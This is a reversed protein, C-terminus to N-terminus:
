GQPWEMFLVKRDNPTVGLTPTIGYPDRVVRGETHAKAVLIAVGQSIGGVSPQVKLAVDVNADGAAGVSLSYLLRVKGLRNTRGSGGTGGKGRRARRGARRTTENVGTTKM